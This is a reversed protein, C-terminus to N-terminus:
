RRKQKRILNEMTLVGNLKHIFSINDFKLLVNRFLYLFKIIVNLGPRYVVNLNCYAKRFEFYKELYNQFATEHQINRAGDCIYYIDELEKRFFDLIYAVIAANISYKEFSPDTKLIEFNICTAKKSLKAYGCFENTEKSFAGFVYIDSTMWSNKIKNQWSMKDVVPRYKKPYASYATIQVRYLEELYDSPNIKKVYFNKNGKNIEYRRKAKIDAINFPTDKIVYWWETEYGCDFNSTWRALIAKKNCVNWIDGSEIMSIDVESDPAVDPVLAHNYYQWGSINVM